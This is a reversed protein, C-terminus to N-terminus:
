ALLYAIAEAEDDFVDAAMTDARNLRQIQLKGAMTRVLTARKAFPGFLARRSPAIGLEFAEDNRGTVRRLDILVGYRARDISASAEILRRFIAIADALEGFPLESRVFRVLKRSADLELRAHPSEHIVSM